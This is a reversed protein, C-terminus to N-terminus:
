LAAPQTAAGDSLFGQAFCPAAVFFLCGIMKVRPGVTAVLVRSSRMARRRAASSM